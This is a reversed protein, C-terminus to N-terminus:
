YKTVTLDGRMCEIKSLKLKFCLEIRLAPNEPFADCFLRSERRNTTQSGM